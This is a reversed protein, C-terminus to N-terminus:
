TTENKLYFTHLDDSYVRGQDMLHRLGEAVQAAPLQLAQALADPTSGEPQMRELLRRLFLPHDAQRRAQVCVDCIGCDHDSKEGFYDLLLRSRCIDGTTAYHTMRELRKVFRERRDDYAERGIQVRRTEVRPRTYIIFPSKKYPIYNIIRLRSLNVLEERVTAAPLETRRALLEEDIFAYDTFIGTYSRLLAKMVRDTAEALPVHYLADRQTIFLVRSAMEMEDTYEIYGSLDLLKLAYHTPLMPLHYAQCFNQLSFDFMAGETCEVPVNLFNSVQEYTKVVQEKPPFEDAIRRKVKALDTGNYLLVAYAKRGDRGARGAEQFYAEISDPFDLHVVTRVDPKDIGMGFANTAVIVRCEDNKWRKQRTDKVATGLGAHFYDAAIGARNLLEATEKTKQRNRVYVVSSGPVAQLIDILQHEKDETRRVIYALNDRRFSKQFVNREPFRLQKQIDEVVEPTATATLALVPVGPLHERLDAIKLYAPRFDYGWQSICHSEDVAILNVKLHKAKELFTRTALREPSV